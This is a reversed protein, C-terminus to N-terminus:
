REWFVAAPLPPGDNNDSVASGSRHAQCLSSVPSSLSSGGGIVRQAASSEGAPHGSCAPPHPPPMAVPGARSVRWTM